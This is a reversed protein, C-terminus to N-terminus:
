DLGHDSFAQCQVQKANNNDANAAVQQEGSEDMEPGNAASQVLQALASQRELTPLEALQAVEVYFEAWNGKVRDFLQQFAPLYHEYTGLSVLFANNFHDSMLKDYRGGGLSERNEQYCVQIRALYKQRTLMIARPGRKKDAYIAALDAKSRLAFDKFIRWQASQGLWRKYALPKDLKVSQSWELAGQRGVFSAFSENFAASGPVWVKSHALEHFLLQALSLPSYDIFSSLIPDNFWGLTSYASVGGVYTEFGLRQYKQAFALADEKAYYGRYPACGAIPYCWTRAQMQLPQAAFVNWVVYDGPLQVYRAYKSGVDLLLRTEAHQLIKESLQFQQRLAKPTQPDDLVTSVPQSSLMIGLHGTVAQNYFGLHECGSLLCLYLGLLIIKFNGRLETLALM